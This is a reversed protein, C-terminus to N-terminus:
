PWIDLLHHPIGERESVTLKATGIDMSQCSQMSGANVVDGGLTRSLNLSIESMGAATPGVVAIARRLMAENQCRPTRGRVLSTAEIGAQGKPSAIVYVSSRAM